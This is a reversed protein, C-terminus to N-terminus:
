PDSLCIVLEQYTGDLNQKSRGLKPIDPLTGLIQKSSVIWQFGRRIINM